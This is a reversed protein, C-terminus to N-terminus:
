KGPSAWLLQVFSGNICHIYFHQLALNENETEVGFVVAAACIVCFVFIIIKSKFYHIKICLASLTHHVIVCLTFIPMFSNLFQLFRIDTQGNMSEQRHIIAIM